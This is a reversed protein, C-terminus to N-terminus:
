TFYLLNNISRAFHVFVRAALRDSQNNGLDVVPLWLEAHLSVPLSELNRSEVQQRHLDMM